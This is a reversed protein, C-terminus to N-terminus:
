DIGKVPSDEKVCQSSLSPFFCQTRHHFFTIIKISCVLPECSAIVEQKKKLLADLM